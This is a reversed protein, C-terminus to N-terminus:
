GATARPPAAAPGPRWGPGPCEPSPPPASWPTRPAHPGATIGAMTGPTIAGSRTKMRTAPRQGLCPSCVCLSSFVRGAETAWASLQPMREGPASQERCRESAGVCPDGIERAALVRGTKAGPSHLVASLSRPRLSGSGRHTKRRHCMFAQSMFNREISNHPLIEAYVGM